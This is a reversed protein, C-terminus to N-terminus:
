ELHWNPRARTQELLWTRTDADFDAARLEVRPLTRLSTAQLLVEAFDRSWPMDDPHQNILMFRRLQTMLPLELFEILQGSMPARDHPRPFTHASLTLEELSPLESQRLIEAAHRLNSIAELALRRLTPLRVAERMGIPMVLQELRPFTGRALFTGAGPCDLVRLDSLQELNPQSFDKWANLGYPLRLTRLCAFIPLQLLEHVDRRDPDDSEAKPLEREDFSLGFVMGGSWELQMLELHEAYPGFTHLGHEVLAAQFAHELRERENPESARQRALDLAAIIGRPDGERQLWDAYVELAAEPSESARIEQELRTERASCQIAVDIVRECEVLGREGWSEQTLEFAREREAETAFSQERECTWGGSNGRDWAMDLNRWRLREFAQGGRLPHQPDFAYFLGIDLDV